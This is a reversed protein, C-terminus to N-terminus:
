EYFFDLERAFEHDDVIERGKITLYGGQLMGDAGSLFALGMFDKLATERGAAIKIVAHPHILRFLSVTRIIEYVPLSIEEKKEFVPTGEIPQLINLPVSDVNLMKLTYALEIRQEATEGMGIIGGSCVSIGSDKVAKVTEIRKEIPHTNCISPYFSPATELNHHYMTVGAAKLEHAAQKDLIGLSACVEIGIEERIKKIAQIITKFDSSGSRVGTGSTVIGFRSSGIEKAKGAAQILNEISLLPYTEINANYHMSQACFKCNEKCKGSKANVITCIQNQRSRFKTKVKGALSFLDMLSSHPIQLMELAEEQSLEEGDLVKYANLILPHIYKM